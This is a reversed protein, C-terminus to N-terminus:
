RHRRERGPKRGVLLYRSETLVIGEDAGYGAEVALLAERVVGEYEWPPGRELQRVDLEDFRWGSFSRAREVYPRLQELAQQRTEATAM